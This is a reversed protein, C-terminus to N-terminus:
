GSLIGEAVLGAVLEGENKPEVGDMFVKHKETTTEAWHTGPDPTGGPETPGKKKGLTWATARDLRGYVAQSEPLLVTGGGNTEFEVMGMAQKGHRVELGVLNTLEHDLLYTALEGLFRIDINALSVPPPGECFEYSIFRKDPLLMFVTGHIEHLNLHEIAIPKTWSGSITKLDSEVRLLGQEIRDHRHILHVQFTSELEYRRIISL